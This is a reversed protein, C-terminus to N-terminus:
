NFGICLKRDIGNFIIIDLGDVHNQDVSLLSTITYTTKVGYLIAKYEKSIDANNFTIKGFNEQKTTENVFGAFTKSTLECKSGALLIISFNKISNFCDEFGLVAKAYGVKFYVTCIYHLIGWKASFLNAFFQALHKKCDKVLFYRIGTICFNRYNFTSVSPAQGSM